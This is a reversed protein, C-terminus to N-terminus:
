VFTGVWHKCYLGQYYYGVHMFIYIKANGETSQCHSNITELQQVVAQAEVWHQKGVPTGIEMPLRKDLTGGAKEAELLIRQV